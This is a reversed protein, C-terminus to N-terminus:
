LPLAVLAGDELVVLPLEVPLEPMVELVGPVLPEEEAVPPPSSPGTEPVAPLPPGGHALQSPMMAGDEEVLLM